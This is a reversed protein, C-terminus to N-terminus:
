PAVGAKIFTSNGHDIKEWGNLKLGDTDINLIYRM